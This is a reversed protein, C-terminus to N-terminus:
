PPGHDSSPSLGWVSIAWSIGLTNTHACHAAAPPNAGLGLSFRVFRDGGELRAKPLALFPHIRSMLAQVALRHSRRLAVGEAIWMIQHESTM